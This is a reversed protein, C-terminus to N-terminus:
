FKLAMCIANDIQWQSDPKKRMHAKQIAHQVCEHAIILCMPNNKVLKNVDKIAMHNGVGDSYGLLTHGQLEALSLVRYLPRHVVGRVDKDGLAGVMELGMSNHVLRLTDGCSALEGGRQIAQNLLRRDIMESQHLNQINIQQLPFLREPEKNPHCLVATCDGLSFLHLYEGDKVGLVFVLGDPVEILDYLEDNLDLIVKTVTNYVSAPGTDSRLALAERIRLEIHTQFYELCQSNRHGDIVGWIDDSYIAGDLQEAREGRSRALGLKAGQKFQPTDFPVPVNRRVTPTRGPKFNAAYSKTQDSLEQAEQAAITKEDFVRCMRRHWNEKNFPGDPIFSLAENFIAQFNEPFKELRTAVAETFGEPYPQNSNICSMFVLSLLKPLVRSRDEVADSAKLLQLISPLLAIPDFIKDCQFHIWQRKLTKIRDHLVGTVPWQPDSLYWDNLKQPKPLSYIEPKPVQVKRLQSSEPIHSAWETPIMYAEPTLAVRYVDM